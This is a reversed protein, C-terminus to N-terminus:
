SLLDLTLPDLLSKKHIKGWWYNSSVTMKYSDILANPESEALLKGDRM